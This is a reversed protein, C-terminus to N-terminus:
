GYGIHSSPSHVNDTGNAKNHGVLLEHGRGTIGEDKTLEEEEEKVEKIKCGM